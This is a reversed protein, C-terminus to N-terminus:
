GQRNAAQGRDPDPRPPPRRPRQVVAQGFLVAGDGSLAFLRTQAPHPGLRRRGPRPDAIEGAAAARGARTEALQEGLRTAAATLKALDAENFPGQEAARHAQIVGPYGDFIPDRVPATAVYNVGFPKLFGSWTGAPPRRAERDQRDNISKWAPITRLRGSVSTPSSSRTLCKSPSCSRYAVVLCPPSSCFPKFPPSIEKTLPTSWSVIFQEKVGNPDPRSLSLKPCIHRRPLTNIMVPLYYPCGLILLTQRVGGVFIACSRRDRGVM